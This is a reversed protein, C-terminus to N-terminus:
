VAKPRRRFVNKWAMVVRRTIWSKPERDIAQGRFLGHSFDKAVWHKFDDGFTMLYYGYKLANVRPKAVTIEGILDMLHEHDRSVYVADLDEYLAHGALLSPKGWFTAEVGMTSGFTIVSDAGELLAYTSVDSDPAVLHFNAHGEQALQHCLQTDLNDVGILNPHMRLYFMLSPYRTAADTIIKRIGNAQMSYVPNIWEEGFGVFEDESSNFIVINRRKSDWNVPLIGKKQHEIFSKWEVNVGDRRSIFCQEGIMMAENEDPAREWAAMTEQTWLARNHPMANKFLAYKGVNAGREHTYLMLGPVQQCARLAGRTTAFRGNFLYVKKIDPHAALFRSVSLYSRLGANAFDLLLRIGEADSCQPDRLRWIASSLAGNGLDFGHYTFSEASKIDTFDKKISAEIDGIDAPLYDGLSHEIVAESLLKMGGCRRLRCRDCKSIKGKPNAECRVLSRDCGLFEVEDGADLHRQAIELETGFHTTWNTFYSIILVKM